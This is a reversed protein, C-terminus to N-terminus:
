HILCLVYDKNEYIGNELYTKMDKDNAGNKKAFKIFILKAEENSNKDDKFSVIRYPVCNIIELVNVTTICM